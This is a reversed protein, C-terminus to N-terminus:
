IETHKPINYDYYGTERLGALTSSLSDGGEAMLERPAYPHSSTSDLLPASPALLHYGPDMTYGGPVGTAGQDGQLGTKWTYGLHDMGLGCGPYGGSAMVTSASDTFSFRESALSHPPPLGTPYHGPHQTYEALSRPVGAELPSVEPTPLAYSPPRLGEMSIPGGPVSNTQYGSHFADSACSSPSSEPTPITFSRSLSASSVPGSVSSLSEPSEYLPPTDSSCGPEPYKSEDLDQHKPSVNGSNNNNLSSSGKSNNNNGGTGSAGKQGDRKKRRPRYKYNPYDQMHKLRLKEAEQVCPARESPTLAKWKKGLMKSLDANHLDPNEDALRKREVKAWVMFANMPRRIREEKRTRKDGGLVGVGVGHGYEPWAGRVVGWGPAYSPSYGPYQGPYSTMAGRYGPSALSYEGYEERGEMAESIVSTVESIGSDSWQGSVSSRV